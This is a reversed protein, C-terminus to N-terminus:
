SYGLLGDVAEVAETLDGSVLRYGPAARCLGALTGLRAQSDHALDFTNPLLDLLTEVQTLPRLRTEAGEEYRPFVVARPPGGSSLSAPRIEDPRVQLKECRESVLEPPLREALGPFLEIAARSLCLPRAFPQVTMSRELLALEDTLYDWGAAVLAATLTTKGSGSPAPLLVVGEPRAVAGAHLGVTGGALENVADHTLHWMLQGVVVALDDDRVVEVGDRSLTFRRPAGLDRAPGQLIDVSWPAVPARERHAVAFGACLRHILDAVEPAATVGIAGVRCVM